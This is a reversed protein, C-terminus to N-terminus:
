HLQLKTARFYIKAYTLPVGSNGWVLIKRQVWDPDGAVTEKFVVYAQKMYEVDPMLNLYFGFMNEKPLGVFLTKAVPRKGGSVYRHISARNKFANFRVPQGDPTVLGLAKFKEIIEKHEM